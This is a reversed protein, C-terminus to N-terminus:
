AAELMYNVTDLHHLLVPVDWEAHDQLVATLMEQYMRKQELLETISYLKM